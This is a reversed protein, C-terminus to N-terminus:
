LYYRTKQYGIIQPNTVSEAKLETTPQRTQVYKLASSLCMLKGRVTPLVALLYKTCSCWVM